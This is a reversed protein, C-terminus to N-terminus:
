GSTKIRAQRDHQLREVDARKERRSLNDFPESGHACSSMRFFPLHYINLVARWERDFKIAQEKNFINEPLACRVPSTPHTGSDNFIRRLGDIGTTGETGLTIDLFREFDSATVPPAATSGIEGHPTENEGSHGM